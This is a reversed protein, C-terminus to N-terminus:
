LPKTRTWGLARWDSTQYPGRTAERATAAFKKAAFRAIYNAQEKGVSLPRDTELDKTPMTNSFVKKKGALEAVCAAVQKMNGLSEAVTMEDIIDAIYAKYDRLCSSKIASSMEKRQEDWDTAGRAGEAIRVIRERILDKTEQSTFRQRRTSDPKPPLTTAGKAVALKLLEYEDDITTTCHDEFGPPSKQFDPSFEDWDITGDLNFKPLKGKTCKVFDELRTRIEATIEITSPVQTLPDGGTQPRLYVRDDKTITRVAADFRAQTDECNILAGWDPISPRPRPKKLQVKVSMIVMGHDFRYGFRKYAQGWRVQSNRVSNLHRKSILIHDIQAPATTAGPSKAMIYTANGKGRRSSKWTPQFKTSAAFLGSNVMLDLVAQGNTDTRSHVSYKGTYGKTNRALRGNFDGLVIVCDSSKVHESSLLTQVDGIVDDCYPAHKKNRYPIYTAVVFFDYSVGKLRIWSIRLGKTGRHTVQEAARESLIFGTGTAKDSKPVVEGPIFRYSRLNEHNGHMETAAIVDLDLELLNQLTLNSFGCTNQTAFTLPKTKVKCNSGATGHKGMGFAANSHTPTVDDTM